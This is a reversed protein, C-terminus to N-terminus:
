APLTSEFSKALYMPGLVGYSVGAGFAISIVFLFWFTLVERRGRRQHEPSPPILGQRHGQQSGGIPSTVLKPLETDATNSREPSKILYNM